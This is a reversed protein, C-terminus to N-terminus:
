VITENQKKLALQYHQHYSNELDNLTKFDTPNHQKLHFYLSPKKNEFYDTLAVSFLYQFQKKSFNIVKQVGKQFEIKSIHSTHLKGQPFILVLNNPKNLLQGAYQLSQLMSRSNHQISFAGLYKMFWIKQATNEIIMVHFQKKLYLNNLHFLAFGDWWSYHNALLLIAKDKQLDITNFNFSNFNQKIIRAIYWVFFRYVLTNKKPKIM